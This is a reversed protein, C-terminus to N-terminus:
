FDSFSFLILKVVGQVPLKNGCDLDIAPRHTLDAKIKMAM